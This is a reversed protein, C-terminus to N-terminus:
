FIGFNNTKVNYWGFGLGTPTYPNYPNHPNHPTALPPNIVLNDINLGIHQTTPTSQFSNNGVNIGPNRPWGVQPINVVLGPDVHRLHPNYSDNRPRYDHYNPQQQQQPQQQVFNDKEDDETTTNTPYVGIQPHQLPYLKDDIDAIKPQLQQQSKTYKKSDEMSSISKIRQQKGLNINLQMRQNEMEMDTLKKATMSLRVCLCLVLCCCVICVIVVVGLYFLLVNSSEFNILFTWLSRQDGTQIEVTSTTANSNMFPM